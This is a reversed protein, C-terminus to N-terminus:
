PFLKKKSISQPPIKNIVLVFEIRFKDTFLDGRLVIHGQTCTCPLCNWRLTAKTNYSTKQFDFRLPSLSINAMPFNSLSIVSSNDEPNRRLVFFASCVEAFWPSHTWLRQWYEASNSVEDPSSPVSLRYSFHRLCVLVSYNRSAFLCFFFWVSFITSFYSVSLFSTYICLFFLLSACFQPTNELKQKTLAYGDFIYQMITEVESMLIFLDRLYPLPASTLAFINAPMLPLSVESIQM